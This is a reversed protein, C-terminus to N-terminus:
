SRPQLPRLLVEPPRQSEQTKRFRWCQREGLEPETWVQADKADLILELMRVGESVDCGCVDFANPPHHVAYPTDVKRISKPRQAM